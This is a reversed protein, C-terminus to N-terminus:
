SAKGRLEQEARFWDDVHNGHQHGREAWFKHALTAVEEYSVARSEEIKSQEIRPQDIAQVESKKAAAKRPKAPAKAKKITETMFIEEPIFVHSRVSGDEEPYLFVDPM